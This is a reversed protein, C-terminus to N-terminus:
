AGAPDSAIMVEAAATRRGAPPRPRAAHLQRCAPARPARRVDEFDEDMPVQVPPAKVDDFTWVENVRWAGGEKILNYLAGGTEYPSSEGKRYRGFAALAQVELVGVKKVKYLRMKSHSYGAKALNSFYKKGVLQAPLIGQCLKFTACYVCLSGTFIKITKESASNSSLTSLMHARVMQNSVYCGMWQPVSMSGFATCMEECIFSQVEEIEAANM